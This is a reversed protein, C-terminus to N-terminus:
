TESTPIAASSKRAIRERTEMEIRNRQCLTITICRMLLPFLSGNMKMDEDILPISKALIKARGHMTYTILDMLDDPLEKGKFKSYNHGNIYMEQLSSAMKYIFETGQSVDATQHSLFKIIEFHDLDDSSMMEWDSQQIAQGRIRLCALLISM